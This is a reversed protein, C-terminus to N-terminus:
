QFLAQTIVDLESDKTRVTTQCRSPSGTFRGHVHQKGPRSATNCTGHIKTLTATKVIDQGKIHASRRRVNRQNL